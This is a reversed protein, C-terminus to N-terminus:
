ARGPQLLRNQEDRGRELELLQPLIAQGTTLRSCRAERGIAVGMRGNDECIRQGPAVDNWRYRCYDGACHTPTCCRWRPSYGGANEFV